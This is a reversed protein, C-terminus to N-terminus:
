LLFRTDECKLSFDRLKAFKAGSGVIIDAWQDPNFFEATLMRGFDAYSFNPKFNENMFDIYRKSPQNGKWYWWFWESGFSPVAYLGWNIFIGFKAEDFWLPLPRKDLSPWDPTYPPKGSVFQLVLQVSLIAKLYM